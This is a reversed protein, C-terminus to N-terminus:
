EWPPVPKTDGPQMGGLHRLVERYSPHDRTYTVRTGAHRGGETSRLDLVIAGDSMMTALGISKDAPPTM